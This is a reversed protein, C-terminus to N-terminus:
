PRCLCTNRRGDDIVGQIFVPMPEVLGQLRADIVILRSQYDQCTKHTDQGRIEDSM